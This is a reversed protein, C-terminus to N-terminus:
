PSEDTIQQQINEQAINHQDIYNDKRKNNNIEPDSFVNCSPILM